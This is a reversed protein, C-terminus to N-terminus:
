EQKKIWEKIIYKWNEKDQLVRLIIIEPIQSDVVFFILYQGSIKMYISTGHYKIETSICSLPFSRLERLAKKIRDIFREGFAAYKFTENIYKKKAIIDRKATESILVNYLQIM